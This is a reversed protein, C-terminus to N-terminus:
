MIEPGGAGYACGSGPLMDEVRKNNLAFIPQKIERELKLCKFDRDEGLWCIRLECKISHTLSEAKAHNRISIFEDMRKDSMKRSIDLLIYSVLDDGNLALEHAYMNTQPMQCGQSVEAKGLEKVQISIITDMKKM